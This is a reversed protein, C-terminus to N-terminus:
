ASVLCLSSVIFNEFNNARRRFEVAEASSQLLSSELTLSCSRQRSLSILRQLLCSSSAPSFSFCRFFPEVSQLSHFDNYLSVWDLSMSNVESLFERLSNRSFIRASCYRVTGVPSDGLLWVGLESLTPRKPKFILWIICDYQFIMM